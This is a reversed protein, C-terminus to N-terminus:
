SRAGLEQAPVCPPVQLDGDSLSYQPSASPAPQRKGILVLCHVLRDAQSAEDGVRGGSLKVPPLNGPLRVARM